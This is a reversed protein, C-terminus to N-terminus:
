EDVEYLYLLTHQTTNNLKTRIPEDAVKIMRRIFQSIQISSMGWKYRGETIIMQSIQKASLWINPNNTFQRKVAKARDSKLLRAGRLTNNKSGVM